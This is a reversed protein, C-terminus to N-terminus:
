PARRTPNRRTDVANWLLVAPVIALVVFGIGAAEGKEAWTLAFPLITLSTASDVWLVIGYSGTVITAAFMAVCFVRSPANM